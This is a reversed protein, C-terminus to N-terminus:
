TKNVMVGNGVVNMLWSGGDMFWIGGIFRLAIRALAAGVGIIISEM